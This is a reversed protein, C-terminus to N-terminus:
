NIEIEDVFLLGPIGKGQHWEPIITSKIIVKVYRAKAPSFKVEVPFREIPDDQVPSDLKTEGLLTFDVNNESSFVQMASARFIWNPTDNLTGATVSQIDMSKGLDIIAEMGTKGSFGIWNGDVYSAEGTKGDVLGSAGNFTYKPNTPVLLETPKYTSKSFRSKYELIGSVTDPHVAIAKVTMAPLLEIPSTYSVSKENPISGDTTYYIKGKGVTSLTLLCGDKNETPNIEEYVDYLHKAYNYGEKKYIALMNEMRSLFSQYDKNQPLGWQIESLAAMRPLLMYEAHSPTEIYETWLNGQPGIIYQAEEETLESPVPEYDYVKRLSIYEGISLPEKSLDKGQNYDLYLNYHPVMIAKHQKKAAAIGGETGRWSMIIANPALGGELIEDWGIIERGQRNIIKEVQSVVYGQLKTEASHESDAKLGTKRIMAQCKPCSKWRTKPCEDGGVHIYKSPFLEMIETFVGELFEYTKENGACLVDEFVGWKTAVEYPGGTCGLEPYVTLAALMHGPMDIEPIITIFRDQAYKVIERIEDQTYFGGYPKGDFKHPTDLLLHGILTEKRISGAETLKPYKKIEIRWGQDDSLHWHFYNINHLALLDIYKKIFDVPFMHRGVDLMAGRYGFRPYDTIDASPFIITKLNGASPNISKRLTQVGYFTGANSAGNILISNESITLQYADSNENTFGTELKIIKGDAADPSVSLEIGTFDKIYDALFLAVRQLEKNNQPYTVVTKKDLEFPKGETYDIKQPLPIINYDANMDAKNCAMLTFALIVISIIKRNM